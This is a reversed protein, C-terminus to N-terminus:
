EGALDIELQNQGPSVEVMLDKAADNCPQQPDDDDLEALNLVVRHKGIVAGDNTAYTSMAFSGDPQIAAHAPKGLNPSKSDAAPDRVPHLILLGASMPEGQCTCVGSVPAIKFQQQGCGGFIMAGLLGCALTIMRFGPLPSRM